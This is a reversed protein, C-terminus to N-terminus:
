ANKTSKKLETSLTRQKIVNGASRGNVPCQASKDIVYIIGNPGWPFFTLNLSMGRGFIFQSYVLITDM